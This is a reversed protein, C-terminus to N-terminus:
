KLLVKRGGIVYVGKEPNAVKRGTLDYAAGAKGGDAATRIGTYVVNFPFGKAPASGSPLALYAKHAATNVSTGNENQYYFGVSAPDGGEEGLSLIYYTQASDSFTAENDSGTLKNDPDPSDTATGEELTYVGPSDTHLVVAEGAPIVSGSPYDRSVVIRDGEVKYTAASLGAPLTLAKDSYYLTSYGISGIEVDVGPQGEEAVTIWNTQALQEDKNESIYYTNVFYRKGVKLGDFSFSYSATGNAAIDADVTKTQVSTGSYGSTHEFLVAKIKKAYTEAKENRVGQKVTITTGNTTNPQGTKSNVLSLGTSALKSQGMDVVTGVLCLKSNPSVQVMTELSRYYLTVYYKKGAALGDLTYVIEKTASAPVQATKNIYSGSYSTYSADTSEWLLLQIDDDYEYPKNNTFKVRLGIHTDATFFEGNGDSTANDYSMTATLSAAQRNTIAVNQITAMTTLGTRKKITLTKTGATKPVYSMTVTGTKGPDVFITVGAVADSTGSEYLLVPLLNTNGNNEVTATITVPSNVLMKGTVDTSTISFAEVATPTPPPAVTNLTLSNGSITAEIYNEGGGRCVGWEGDGSLRSVAVIKYAGDELGNGFNVFDYGYMSAGSDFANTHNKLVSVLEDGKYLAWGYDFSAPVGSNGVNRITYNVKVNPFDQTSAGRTYPGEDNSMGSITLLEKAPAGGRDPQLGYVIDQFNTYGNTGTGGGIGKEDPNLVSLLFYDDGHGGWGWNIHFRGEGDYGDCIFAHGASGSNGSYLVPRNAQIESYILDEWQETTYDWRDAHAASPDLGFVSVFVGPGASASSSYPGYDMGVAQGCYLMLKAVEDAATGTEGATYTAKMASYNFSTQPLDPMSIKYSSTTYGAVAGKTQAAKHYYLLQAMATAVCGTVCRQGGYTPCSNNYPASQNWKTEILTPLADRTCKPARAANAPMSAMESEYSSLLWALGEPMDAGDIEGSASYGLIQPTRDDGSVVVYGGGDVNYIHYAGTSIEHGLAPVAAKSGNGKIRKPLKSKVFGSAIQRAEKETVNGGMAATAALFAFLLTWIRM